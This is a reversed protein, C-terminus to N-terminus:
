VELEHVEEAGAERLLRKVKEREEETCSVMIGFRDVSFRPDYYVPLKRQPLRANILLGGFTFLVGMLICFEFAVIVFPIWPVIPKGSVIFKWKLVTFAALGLGSAIGFLGGFLTFRRVPSPKMGLAERIEHRGTPSFATFKWEGEKVAELGALFDDQYSFIGMLATQQM